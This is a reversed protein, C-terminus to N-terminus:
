EYWSMVEIWTGDEMVVIVSPDVSALAMAMAYLALGTGVAAITAIGLVVKGTTILAKEVEPSIKIEKINPVSLPAPKTVVPGPLQPVEVLEHGAIIQTPNFGSKLILEIRKKADAPIISAVVPAYVWNGSRVPSSIEGTRDLVRFRLHNERAVDLVKKAEPTILM